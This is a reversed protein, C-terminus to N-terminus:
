GPPIGHPFRFLRDPDYAAKVWVLRDYARRYYARPWGELRPDVYNQYARGSSWPRMARRLTQQWAATEDLEDAPTGGRRATFYQASFVASRHVFATADEDVRGIAGGMADLIVVGTRKPARAGRIMADVGDPPLPHDFFDSAAVYATRELTGTSDPAPLHCEAVSREECGAMALMLERYGTM